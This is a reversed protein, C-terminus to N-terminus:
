LISPIENENRPLRDGFNLTKISKHKILKELVKRSFLLSISKTYM